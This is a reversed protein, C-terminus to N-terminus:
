SVEKLHRSPHKLRRFAKQEIQRIRSGSIGLVEGVETLTREKGDELGYRLKLVRQEKESITDLAERLKEIRQTQEQERLTDEFQEIGNEGPLYNIEPHDLLRETVLHETVVSRVGRLERLWEPFLKTKDSGLINSLLTAETESPYRKFTEIQSLLSKNSGIRIALQEQTLGLELRRKRVENNFMQHRIGVSFKLDVTTNKM